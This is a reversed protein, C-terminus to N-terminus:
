GVYFVEMLGVFIVFLFVLLGEMCFWRWFKVSLNIRREVRKSKWCM